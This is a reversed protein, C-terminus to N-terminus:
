QNLNSTFSINIVYSNINLKRNIKCTYLIYSSSIIWHEIQWFEGEIFLYQTFNYLRISYGIIYSFKIRLINHALAQRYTAIQAAHGDGDNVGGRRGSSNWWWWWSYCTRLASSELDNERLKPNSEWRVAVRKSIRKAVLHKILQSLSSFILKKQPFYTPQLLPNQSLMKPLLWVGFFFFFAFWLSGYFWRFFYLGEPYWVFCWIQHFGCFFNCIWSFGCSFDGETATWLITLSESAEDQNQPGWGCCISFVEHCCARQDEEESWGM